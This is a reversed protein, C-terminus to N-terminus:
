GDRKAGAKEMADRFRAYREAETHRDEASWRLLAAFAVSGVLVAAVFLAIEVIVM